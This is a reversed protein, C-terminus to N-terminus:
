ERSLFTGSDLFVLALQEYRAKLNYVCDCPRRQRELALISIDKKKKNVLKSLNNGVICNIQM